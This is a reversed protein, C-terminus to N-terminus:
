PRKLFLAREKNRRIVLGELKRLVGLKNRAKVYLGFTAAIRAKDKSAIARGMDYNKTIVTGAGLNYAFSVLAAFENENVELGINKFHKELANEKEDMEYKFCYIAYDHSIVDGKKVKRGNPYIITGYGITWVGAPCLYATCEGKTGFKKHYGESEMCLKIGAANTILNSFDHNRWSEQSEEPITDQSVTPYDVPPTTPPTQSRGRNWWNKIKRLIKM